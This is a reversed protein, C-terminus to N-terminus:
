VKLHKRISFFSGILGIGVGIGIGVPILIAFVASQPAFSINRAFVGFKSIILGILRSYVVFLIVLPIISGILGITVGEIIFPARVFSNTSGILKMIKIEEKRVNIGIMVTNSILFIGVGLLIIILAISAYGLLRELNTLTAKAKESHKVKRIGEIQKVDKVFDDQTKINKLYITYSASNALPNNKEFGKALEPDEKFYDEKFDAWAQEASTFKMSKVRKDAKIQKGIEDIKEQPTNNEFFVTVGVQQELKKEMYNVNIIIALIVSILFICAAVTGISAVSYLKNRKINVLGQKICYGTTRASM